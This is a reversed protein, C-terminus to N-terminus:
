GGHQESKALSEATQLHQELTPIMQRAYAKVDADHGHEAERRFEVLAKTHDRVEARLFRQDFKRSQARALEEVGRDRRVDIGKPITAGAKNAVITLTEYANTHDRVLKRGFDKISAEPAKNQAMKGLYAESMNIDAAADLFKKDSSSLNSFQALALAGFLIGSCIGGLITKFRM